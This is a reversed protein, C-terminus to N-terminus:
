PWQNEEYYKAEQKMRKLLESNDFNNFFDEVLYVARLVHALDNFDDYKELEITAMELLKFGESTEKKEIASLNKYKRLAHLFNNARNILSKAERAKRDETTIGMRTLLFLLYALLFVAIVYCININM